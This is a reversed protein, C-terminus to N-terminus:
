TMATPLTIFMKQQRRTVVGRGVRNEMTRKWNLWLFIIENPHRGGGPHHWGPRDAGGLSGVAKVEPSQILQCQTQLCLDFM